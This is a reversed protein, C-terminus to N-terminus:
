QILYKGDSYIKQLPGSPIAKVVENIDLSLMGEWIENPMNESTYKRIINTAVDRFYIGSYIPEGLNDYKVDYDPEYFLPESVKGNEIIYYTLLKDPTLPQNKARRKMHKNLSYIDDHPQIKILGMDLLESASLKYAGLFTYYFLYTSNRIEEVKKWDTLNDKHSYGNRLITIHNFADIILEHTNATIKSELLFRNKLRYEKKKEDYFGFFRTLKGLPLLRHNKKNDLFEDTLDRFKRDYCYIQINRGEKEITHFKLYQLLFQEVSKFYDMVIPTLDINGVNQLSFYLWEATMFSLAYDSKGLLLQYRDQNFFIYSILDKQSPEMKAYFDTNQILEEIELLEKNLKFRFSNVTNPKLSRILYFGLYDKIEQSVLNMNQKFLVYEDHGFFVDFFYQLSFTDTGRGPDNLDNNHNIIESYANDEVISIYRIFKIEPYKNKIETKTKAPLRNNIGYEKFVYLINEEKDTRRLSYFFHQSRSDVVSATLKKEEGEYFFTGNVKLIKYNQVPIQYLGILDDVIKYIYSYSAKVSEQMIYEYQEYDNGTVDLISFLGNRRIDDDEWQDRLHRIKKLFADTEEKYIEESNIKKRQSKALITSNLSRKILPQQMSPRFIPKPIENKSQTTKYIQTRNQKNDPINSGVMIITKKKPSDNKEM